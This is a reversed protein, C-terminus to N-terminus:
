GLSPIVPNFEEDDMLRVFQAYTQKPEFYKTVPFNMKGHTLRTMHDVDKRIYENWKEENDILKFLNHGLKIRMLRQAKFYIVKDCVRLRGHWHIKGNTTLEPYAEFDGIRALYYTLRSVTAMIQKFVTPNRGAGIYEFTQTFAIAYDIKPADEPPVIM